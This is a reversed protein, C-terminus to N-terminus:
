TLVLRLDSMKLWKKIAFLTAFFSFNRSFEAFIGRKEAKKLKFTGIKPVNDPYNQLMKAACVM